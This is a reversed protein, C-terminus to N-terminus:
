IADGQAQSPLLHHLDLVPPHFTCIPKSPHFSTRALHIAPVAQPQQHQGLHKKQRLLSRNITLIVHVKTLRQLHVTVDHMNTGELRMEVVM